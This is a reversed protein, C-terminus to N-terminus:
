RMHSRIGGFILTAPGLLGSTLNGRYGTPITLYHNSLTNYVLVEIRNDGAKVLGTIKFRWPPSIRVGALQGNVHVEASAVVSGLDLTIEGGAQEETLTVTKRYWAGGSYCELVGSKSWDGLSTFGTECELTVPEPLTAGGYCGHIQSIRLAVETLNRKPANLEFSWRDAQRKGNIEEGEVWAQVEGLATITMARLGPPATFRYWGVPKAEHPKM